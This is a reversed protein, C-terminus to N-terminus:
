GRRVCLRVGCVASEFTFHLVGCLLSALCVMLAVALADSQIHERQWDPILRVGEFYGTIPGGPAPQLPVMVRM